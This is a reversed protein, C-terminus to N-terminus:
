HRSAPITRPVTEDYPSRNWRENLREISNKPPPVGLLEASEVEHEETEEVARWTQANRNLKTILYPFVVFLFIAGGTVATGVGYEVYLGGIVLPILFCLFFLVGLISHPFGDPEHLHRGDATPDKARLTETPHDHM